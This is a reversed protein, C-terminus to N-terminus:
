ECEKLRKILEEILQNNTAEHLKIYDQIPTDDKMILVYTLNPDTDIVKVIEWDSYSSINKAQIFHYKKM